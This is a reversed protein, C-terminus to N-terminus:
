RCVECKQVVGLSACELREAATIEQWRQSIWTDSDRYPAHRECNVMGQENWFLTQNKTETTM